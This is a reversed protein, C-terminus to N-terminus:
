FSFLGSRRKGYPYVVLAAIFLGVTIGIAVQVMGVALTWVSSNTSLGAGPQSTGSPSSINHRIQDASAVGTILSGSAALGSPVLVFIAPLIATAAHGHWLRSYLNGMIGITFAGVTNAVQSNSGLRKTSFYNTIYGSMAITTMVPLQKWKGQNIILLWVTMLAVFPFRQVYQNKFAGAKPCQIDSVASGDMLGYITTGVTIGYGLFLSYIIAYVMRISGAIIQHSQLELSSCLVLFGPLILAISSQAIASFCFLFQRKGDIVAKPISGFARALFSTLVTATVEFVNSYLASRPALVQQMLGLLCGNFFIIPMDIPRANFAFPGVTASALGYVLVVIWKNFRPPKKEIEELEQIAEEVGIVDHVVNKYIRHTNALKQLNIGQAVRVLKVETTRTSPDDFSMIMCGPFYLFQSDVELVKATMQMYEELRHTPAGFSMLAKCLQMIYRQRAIIEAIQVTVQIEDELRMRGGQQAQQGGLRKSAASLVESSVPTSAGSMSGSAGILTSTSRTHQKNKYWKLKEKKPTTTGSTGADSPSRQGNQGGQGGQGGQQMGGNLKMLQALVGGGGARYRLGSDIANKGQAGQGGQTDTHPYPKGRMSRRNGSQDQTLERVLRHAESTSTAQHTKKEEHTKHKNDTLDGLPANGGSAWENHYVGPGLDDGGREPRGLRGSWKSLKGHVTDRLWRLKDKATRSVDGVAAAAGIAAPKKEVPTKEAQQLDEQTTREQLPTETIDLSGHIYPTSMLHPQGQRQAQDRQGKQKEKISSEDESSEPGGPEPYDVSLASRFRVRQRKQSAEGNEGNEGNTPATEINPIEQNDGDQSQQEPSRPSGPPAPPSGPSEPSVSDETNESEPQGPLFYSCRSAFGYLAAQDHITTLTASYASFIGCFVTRPPFIVHNAM